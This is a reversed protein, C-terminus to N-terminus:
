DPVSFEIWHSKQIIGGDTIVWRRAWRATNTDITSLDAAPSSYRVIGAPGNFVTATKTTQTGSPDRLILQVTANSLDWTEGDKKAVLVFLYTSGSTLSVLM